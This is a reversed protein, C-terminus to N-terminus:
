LILFGPDMFSRILFSQSFITAITKTFIHPAGALGQIVHKNKFVKHNLYFCTKHNHSPKIRIHSFGNTVDTVIVHKNKLKSHIYDITPLSAKYVNISDRNLSKLDFTMRLKKMDELSTRDAKAFSQSSESKKRVINLNTRYASDFCEEMLGAKTYHDVVTTAYQLAIGSLPRKKDHTITGPKTDINMYLNNAKSCNGIDLKHRSFRDSYTNLLEMTRKIHNPPTDTTDIDLISFRKSFEHLPVLDEKLTLDEISEVYANNNLNRQHPTHQSSNLSIAHHTAIHAMDTFHNHSNYDHEMQMHDIEHITKHKPHPDSQHPIYQRALTYVVESPPLALLIQGISDHSHITLDINSNNAINVTTNNAPTIDIEKNLVNLNDPLTNNNKKYIIGKKVTKPASHFINILSKVANHAEKITCELNASSQAPIIITKSSLIINNSSMDDMSQYIPIALIKNHHYLLFTSGATMGEKTFQNGLIAKYGNIYHAVLFYITRTIIVGDFSTFTVPLQIEGAVLDKSEGTACKLYVKTPTYSLHLAKILKITIMNEMAGTDVLALISKTSNIDIKIFGLTRPNKTTMLNIDTPATQRDIRKLRNSEKKVDLISTVKSDIYHKYGTDLDKSRLVWLRALDLDNLDSSPYDNILNDRPKPFKFSNLNLTIDNYDDLRTDFVPDIDDTLVKPPNTLTISTMISTDSSPDTHTGPDLTSHILDPQLPTTAAM